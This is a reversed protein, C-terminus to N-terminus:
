RVWPVGCVYGPLGQTADFLGDLNASLDLLGPGLDGAKEILLGSSAYGPLALLELQLASTVQYEDIGGVLVALHSLNPCSFLPHVLVNLFLKASSRDCLYLCQDCLHSFFVFYKVM